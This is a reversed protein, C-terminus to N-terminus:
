FGIKIKFFRHKIYIYIVAAPYLKDVISLDFEQLAPLIKMSM